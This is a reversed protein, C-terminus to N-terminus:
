KSAAEDLILIPKKYLLARALCFLQRQGHSWSAAQMEADLGGKEQILDWIGVTQFASLLEAESASNGLSANFRVTGSIILPEQTIINLSSSLQDPSLLAVDVGNIM